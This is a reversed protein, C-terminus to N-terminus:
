DRIKDSAGPLPADYLAEGLCTLLHVITAGDLPVPLTPPGTTCVTVSVPPLRLLPLPASVAAVLETAHAPQVSEMQELSVAGGIVTLVLM